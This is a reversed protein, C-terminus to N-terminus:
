GPCRRRCWRRSRHAAQPPMSRRPACGAPTARCVPLARSSQADPLAVRGPLVPIACYRLSLVTALTSAPELVALGLHLPKLKFGLISVFVPINSEATAAPSSFLCLLRILWQTWPM